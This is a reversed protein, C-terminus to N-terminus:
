NQWKAVEHPGDSSLTYETHIVVTPSHAAMGTPDFLTNMIFGGATFQVASKPGECMIDKPLWVTRFKEGNFAFLRM